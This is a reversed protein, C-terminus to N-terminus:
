GRCDSRIYIRGSKSLARAIPWGRRLRLWLTTYTIGLHRAWESVTLCRGNYSIRQQGRIQVKKRAM